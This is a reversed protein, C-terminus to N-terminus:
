LPLCPLDGGDTGSWPPPTFQSPCPPAPMRGGDQGGGTEDRLRIIRDRGQLSFICYMNYYLLHRARMNQIYSCAIFYIFLSTIYNVAIFLTHYYIIPLPLTYIDPDTTPSFTFLLSSFSCYLAFLFPITWLICWIITLLPPLPPITYNPTNTLVQPLPLVILLNYYPSYGCPPIAPINRPPLHYHTPLLCSLTPAFGLLCYPPSHTPCPLPTLPFPLVLYAYM